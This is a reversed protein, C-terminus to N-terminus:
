CSQLSGANTSNRVTAYNYRQLAMDAACCLLKVTWSFVEDRDTFRGRKEQGWVWCSCTKRQIVVLYNM